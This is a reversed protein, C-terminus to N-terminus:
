ILCLVSPYNAPKENKGKFQNSFDVMQSKAKPVLNELLKRIDVNDAKTKVTVDVGEFRPVNM